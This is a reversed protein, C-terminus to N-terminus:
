AALLELVTRLEEEISGAEDVTDALRKKVLDRFRVRTRHLFAKLQSLTVRDLYRQRPTNFDIAVRDVSWGLREGSRPVLSAFRNVLPAYGSPTAAGSSSSPQVTM